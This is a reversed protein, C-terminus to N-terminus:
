GPRGIKRSELLFTLASRKMAFLWSMVKSIAKFRQEQRM